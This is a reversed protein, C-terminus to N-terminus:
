PDLCPDLRDNPLEGMKDLVVLGIVAHQRQGIRCRLGLALELMLRREIIELLDFQEHSDVSTDTSKIRHLFQALELDRELAVLDDAKAPLRDILPLADM